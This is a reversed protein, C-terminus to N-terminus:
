QPRSMSSGDDVRRALLACMFFEREEKGPEKCLNLDLGCIIPSVSSMACLWIWMWWVDVLFIMNLSSGTVDKREMKHDAYFHAFDGVGVVGDVDQYLVSFWYRVGGDTWCRVLALYMRVFDAVSILCQATLVQVIEYM